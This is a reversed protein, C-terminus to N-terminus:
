WPAAAGEGEGKGEGDGDRDRDGDGGVGTKEVEVGDLPTDRTVERDEDAVEFKPRFDCFTHCFVGVNKISIFPVKMTM